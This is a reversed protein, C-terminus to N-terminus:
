HIPSMALLCLGMWNEEQQSSLLGGERKGQRQVSKCFGLNWPVIEIHRKYIAVLLDQIM